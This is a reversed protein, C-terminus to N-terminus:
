KSKAGSKLHKLRSAYTSSRRSIAKAAKQRTQNYSQQLKGGVVDIRGSVLDKRRGTLKGRLIKTQGRVQKIRGKLEGKNM